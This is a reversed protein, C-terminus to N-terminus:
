FTGLDLYPFTLLSPKKESFVKKKEVIINEVASSPVLDVLKLDLLSVWYLLL